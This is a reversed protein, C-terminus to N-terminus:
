GPLNDEALGLMALFEQCEDEDQANARISERARELTEASLEEPRPIDKLRGGKGVYETM